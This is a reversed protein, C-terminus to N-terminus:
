LGAERRVRIGLDGGHHLVTMALLFPQHFHPLPRKPSIFECQREGFDQPAKWTAGLSLVPLLLLYFCFLGCKPAM